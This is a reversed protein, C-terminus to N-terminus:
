AIVLFSMGDEIGLNDLSIDPDVAKMVSADYVYIRDTNVSVDDKLLKVIDAFCAKSPVSCEYTHDILKIFITVEHM